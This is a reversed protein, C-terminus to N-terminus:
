NLLMNSYFDVSNLLTGDIAFHQLQYTDPTLGSQVFSQDLCDLSSITEEPASSISTRQSYVSTGKAVQLFDDGSSSTATCVINFSTNSVPLVQVELGATKNNIKTTPIESLTSQRSHFRRSVLVDETPSVVDLIYYGPPWKRTSIQFQGPTFDSAPPSYISYNPYAYHLFAQWIVSSETESSISVYTKGPMPIDPPPNVIVTMQLATPDLSQYVTSHVNYAAYVEPPIAEIFMRAVLTPTATPDETLTSAYGFPGPVTPPIALSVTANVFLVAADVDTRAVINSYSLTYLNDAYVGSTDVNRITGDAQLVFQDGSGPLTEEFGFYLLSQILPNIGETWVQMTPIDTLQTSFSLISNQFAQFFVEPSSMYKERLFVDFAQANFNPPLSSNM